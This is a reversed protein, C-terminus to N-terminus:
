VFQMEFSENRLQNYLKFHIIGGFNQLFAFFVPHKEIM